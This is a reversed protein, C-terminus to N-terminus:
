SVAKLLRTISAYWTSFSCAATKYHESSPSTTQQMVETQVSSCVTSLNALPWLIQLRIPCARTDAKARIHGRALCKTIVPEEVASGIALIFIPLKCKQLVHVQHSMLSMSFTTNHSLTGRETAVLVAPLYGSMENCIDLPKVSVFPSVDAWIMDNLNRLPCMLLIITLLVLLWSIRWHIWFTNKLDKDTHLVIFVAFCCKLYFLWQQKVVNISVNALNQGWSRLLSEPLSKYDVM